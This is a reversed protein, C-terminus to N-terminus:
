THAPDGEQKRKEFSFRAGVLIIIWRSLNKNGKNPQQTTTPKNARNTTPRENQEIPKQDNSRKNTQNTRKNTQQNPKNAKTSGRRLFDEQLRGEVSHELTYFPKNNGKTPDKNKNKGEQQKNDCQSKQHASTSSYEERTRREKEAREQSM